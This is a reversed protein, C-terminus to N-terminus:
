EGGTTTCSFKVFSWAVNCFIIIASVAELIVNWLIHSTVEHGVSKSIVAIAVTVSAFSDETLLLLSWFVNNRHEISKLILVLM